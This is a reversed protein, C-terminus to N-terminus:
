PSARHCIFLTHTNDALTTAFLYTDGGDNLKLRKRLEAVSLPFNRVTMNAQSIGHLKEKLERKNLSSVVHIRFKRGPFDGIFRRSLFLHSNQAVPSVGFREAVEGFCGAKMIAANPEYLFGDTLDSVEGQCLPRPASTPATTTEFREEDNVCILRREEDTTDPQSRLVLLLEKCENRVAVIHVESVLQDGIDHVAKRWDLMPSLKLLVYDAKATLLDLLSLVDPTCDSIGYTRGGHADRRAPDIYVWDFHLASQSLYDAGDSCVVQAETLGLLKFNHRAIECLRPQQEVYCAHSFQRAMFTFDVGLGGTMDLLSSHPSAHFSAVLRTKYLATQESSCQELSLHPPYVLGETAAYTPLKQAAYQRGAIQELAFPLDVSSDKCRQLALQHPQDNAHQRIFDLTPQNIHM